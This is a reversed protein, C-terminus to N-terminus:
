DSGDFNVQHLFHTVEFNCFQFIGKGQGKGSVAVYDLVPILFRVKADGAIYFPVAGNFVHATKNVVNYDGSPIPVTQLTVLDTILLGLLSDANVTFDGTVGTNVGWSPRWYFILSRVESLGKGGQLSALNATFTQFGGYPQTTQSVGGAYSLEPFSFNTSAKIPLQTFDVSVTVIRRGEPLCKSEIKGPAPYSSLVPQPVTSM